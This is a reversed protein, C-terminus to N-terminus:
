KPHLRVGNRDIELCRIFIWKRWNWHWNGLAIKLRFFLAISGHPEVDGFGSFSRLFDLALKRFNRINGFSGVSFYCFYIKPLFISSQRKIELSEGAPGTLPRSVIQDLSHCYTIPLHPCVDCLHRHSTTRSCMVKTIINCTSPQIRKAGNVQHYKQLQRLRLRGQTVEFWIMTFLINLNMTSVIINCVTEYM